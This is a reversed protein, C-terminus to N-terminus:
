SSQPKSDSAASKRACGWYNYALLRPGPVYGQHADELLFGAQQLLEPTSRDLCCGGAMRRWVPTVRRQWRAVGADPALGHECYLLRGQPKLVRAMEQLAALPDAITCLSYTVVLSDFSANDFPLKEAELGVREVDIGAAQARKQALNHLEIGPDLGVLRTVQSVQYHPINLGTGMGIELVDGTAQPVVKDRQRRIPGVGCCWDVLYPLLARDYFGGLKKLM